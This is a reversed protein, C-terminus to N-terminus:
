GRAGGAVKDSVLQVAQLVEALVELICARQADGNNALQEWRNLVLRLSMQDAAVQRRWAEVSPRMTEGHEDLQTQERQPASQRQLTPRVIRRVNETTLAGSTFADILPQREETTPLRAIERAAHLAAPNQAVMAQIDDPAHLLALRAELYSKDKGIREALRRISYGRENLFLRFAQAEELPDLDRRQINEALGIEILDDDSHAAVDCPVADLGALKAARLRREGYLLEFMGTQEPAPRVRLRSVFGQERIAAALEALGDFNQRAQYPNPRIRDLPILQPVVTRQPMLAELNRMRAAEAVLSEPEELAIRNRRSAM